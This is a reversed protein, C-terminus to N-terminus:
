RTPDLAAIRDPQVTQQHVAAHNISQAPGREGAFDEVRREPLDFAQRIWGVKRVDVEQEPL